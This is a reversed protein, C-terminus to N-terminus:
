RSMLSELYNHVERYGPLLKPTLECGPCAWHFLIKQDEPKLQNSDYPKKNFHEVCCEPYGFLSGERRRTAPSKDIPRDAFEESYSDLLEESKSFIYETVIRGTKVSRSVSRVTLGLEEILDIDGSGLEKEWRSLPKLGRFTLLILYALEFDVDLLRAITDKITSSSGRSSRRSHQWTYGDRM